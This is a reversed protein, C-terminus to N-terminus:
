ATRLTNWLIMLGGTIILTDMIWVHLVAHLRRVLLSAVWSGPLTALGIAVGLVAHEVDLLRYRGFLLARTV